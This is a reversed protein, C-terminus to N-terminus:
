CREPVARRQKWAKIPRISTKERGGGMVVRLLFIRTSSGCENKKPGQVSGYTEWGLIMMKDDYGAGIEIRGVVPHHRVFFLVEEAPKM